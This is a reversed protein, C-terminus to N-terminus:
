PGTIRTWRSSSANRALFRNESDTANPCFSATRYGDSCMIVHSEAVRLRLGVPRGPPGAGAVWPPGVKLNFPPPRAGDEFAQQLVRPLGSSESVLLPTSESRDAAATIPSLLGSSDEQWGGDSSSPPIIVYRNIARKGAAGKYARPTAARPLASSGKCRQCVRIGPVALGPGPPNALV